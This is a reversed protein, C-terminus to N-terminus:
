NYMLTVQPLGERPSLSFTIVRPGFSEAESSDMRCSLRPSMPSRSITSGVAQVSKVAVVQGGCMLFKSNAMNAM